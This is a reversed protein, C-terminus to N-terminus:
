VVFSIRSFILENVLSVLPWSDMLWSVVSDMLGSLGHAMFWLGHLMLSQLAFSGHAVLGHVSHAMLWSDMYAIFSQLDHTMSTVGLEDFFLIKQPFKENKMKKFKGTKPNLLQFILKL